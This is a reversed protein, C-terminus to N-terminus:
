IKFQTLIMFYSRFRINKPKAILTIGWFDTIKPPFITPTDPANDYKNLAAKIRLKVKENRTDGGLGDEFYLEKIFRGKENHRTNFGDLKGDKYNM